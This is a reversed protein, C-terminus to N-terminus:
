EASPSSFLAAMEPLNKESSEATAGLTLLADLLLRAGEESLSGEEPRSLLRLLRELDQPSARHRGPVYPLSKLTEELERRMDERPVAAVPISGPSMSRAQEIELSERLRVSWERDEETPSNGRLARLAALSLRSVALDAALPSLFDAGRASSAAKM